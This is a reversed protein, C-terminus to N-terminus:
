QNNGGPSTPPGYPAPIYQVTPQRQTPQPFLAMLQYFDAPMDGRVHLNLEQAEKLGIPHDHTWTGQTLKDALTEAQERPLKADFLELVEARIQHLAKEAVDAM